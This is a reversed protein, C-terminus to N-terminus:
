VLNSLNERKLARTFNRVDLRSFEEAEANLSPAGYAKIIKIGNPTEQATINFVSYNNVKATKGSKINM